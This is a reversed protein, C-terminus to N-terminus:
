QFIFSAIQDPLSQGTMVEGALLVVAAVMATRGLALETELVARALAQEADRHRPVEHPHL